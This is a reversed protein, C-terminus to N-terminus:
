LAAEGLELLLRRFHKALASDARSRRLLVAVRDKAHSAAEVTVLPKSATRESPRKSWLLWTVLLILLSITFCAGSTLNLAESSAGIFQLPPQPLGAPPVPSSRAAFKSIISTLLSAPPPPPPPPLPPPALWSLWAAPM